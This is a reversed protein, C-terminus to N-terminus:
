KIILRQANGNEDALLYIGAVLNFSLENAGIQINVHQLLSGDLGYLNFVGNEKSQVNVKGNSPNPSILFNNEAVLSELSAVAPNPHQWQLFFRWIEKAETIDNVPEYLYIHDAGNIRWLEVSKLPTCNNYVFRDITLGDSATNPLQSSDATAACGHVNRWFDMTEAVLSLSPLPTGDYPVTMDSTGHLHIVPTKYAPVCTAIDDTSMTGAMPGIAAIRNNMACALHHSMIGGMSFGTVYIRSSNANQELIMKNMMVNFFGIDNANSSALTGNNWATQGLGNPLADPYIAIIRATDAIGAFGALTMQQANGGLGHLIFVVPLNETIQYGTPLYKYYNRSVSGVMITHSTLQASVSFTFLLALFSTYLQKM